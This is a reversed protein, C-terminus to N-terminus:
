AAMAKATARVGKVRATWGKGFTSFTRLGKLYAMRLDCICDVLPEVPQAKVAALTNPGIQGDIDIMLAEQLFSGARRPGSNIAFDFLCYDLGSPLHDGHVADWYRRKYLAMVEAPTIVRVTQVPLGHDVRWADYVAQTVGQNTAGGPDKPHNVYGGEHRLVAKLAADFNARM